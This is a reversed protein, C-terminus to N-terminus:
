AMVVPAIVGRPDCRRHRRGALAARLDEVKLCRTHGIWQVKVLGLRVLKDALWYSVGLKSAAETLPM